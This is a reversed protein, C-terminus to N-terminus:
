DSLEKTQKFKKNYVRNQVIQIKVNPWKTFPTPKIWFKSSHLTFFKYIFTNLRQITDSM